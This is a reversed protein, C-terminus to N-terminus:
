PWYDVSQCNANLKPQAKIAERLRDVLQAPDRQEPLLRELDRQVRENFERRTGVWTSCRFL